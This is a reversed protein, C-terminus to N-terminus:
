SIATFVKSHSTRGKFAMLCVGPGQQRYPVGIGLFGCSVGLSPMAATEDRLASFEQDSLASRVRGVPRVRGIAESTVGERGLYRLATLAEAAPRGALAM